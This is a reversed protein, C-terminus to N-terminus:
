SRAGSRCSPRSNLINTQTTTQFGAASASVSYNGIKIPSFVYIGASDTKSKLVLGEDLNTLTVSAGGIVAGTQDQVVGTITGQDLQAVAFRAPALLLAALAITMWKCSFRM